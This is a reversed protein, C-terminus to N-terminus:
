ASLLATLQAAPMPKGLLFGQGLHCGRRRARDLDDETEIGEAVVTWGHHAAQAVIADVAADADADSRQTLSRDIKVETLPLADLMTATTDGAGFDDISLGLGAERARELVALVSPLLQPAPSETIEITLSGTSLGLDAAREAVTDVWAASFESPSANVSLGLHHGAQQWAAVQTGARTLVAAGLDAIIGHSEALPIFHVPSITGFRPHHWRCLAEVAVPLDPQGSGELDFLPQFEISLGGAPVAARLETALTACPDM